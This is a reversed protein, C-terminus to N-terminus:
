HAPEGPPAPQPEWLLSAMLAKAGDPRTIRLWIPEGGPPVQLGFTVFPCCRRENDIFAAIQPFLGAAFRFAYGDPLEQKETYLNLLLNEATEIHEARRGAPIAHLDCAIPLSQNM